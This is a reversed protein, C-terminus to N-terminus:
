AGGRGGEPLPESKKLGTQVGWAHAAVGLGVTLLNQVIEPVARGTLIDISAVILCALMVLFLLVLALYQELLAPSM